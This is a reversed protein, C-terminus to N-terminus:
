GSNNMLASSRPQRAYRLSSIHSLSQTSVGVEDVGDLRGRGGHRIRGSERDRKWGHAALLECGGEVSAAQGRIAADEEQGLGGTLEGDRVLERSDDRVPAIGAPDNMGQGLDQKGADERDGAAILIAIIEIM